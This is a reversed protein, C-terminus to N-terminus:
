TWQKQYAPEANKVRKKMNMLSSKVMEAPIRNYEMKIKRKLGAMNAPLPHYVRLSRIALMREKFITDLWNMVM